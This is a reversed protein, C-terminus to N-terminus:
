KVTFTYYGEEVNGHVFRLEYNGPDTNEPIVLEYSYQGPVTSYYFFMNEKHIFTSSPYDSKHETKEPVVYSISNNRPSDECWLTIFMSSGPTYEHADKKGPYESNFVEIKTIKLPTEGTAVYKGAEFANEDSKESIAETQAPTTNDKKEADKDSCGCLLLLSLLVYIIKKM